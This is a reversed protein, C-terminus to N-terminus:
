ETDQHEQAWKEMDKVRASILGHQEKASMIDSLLRKAMIVALEVSQKQLSERAHNELEQVEERARVIIQASQDHAKALLEKEVEKAQKKAVEIIGLADERAKALAKEEKLKLKEEEDKMKSSLSLGAEIDKKRKAIMELIPKYLLKNLLLFIVFFNVVQALLLTPEIGLKEM